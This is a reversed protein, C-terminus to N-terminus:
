VLPAPANGLIFLFRDTPVALGDFRTLARRCPSRRQHGEGGHILLSLSNGFVISLRGPQIPLRSLCLPLKALPVLRYAPETHGDQVLVALAYGSVAFFGDAQIPPGGLPANFLSPM